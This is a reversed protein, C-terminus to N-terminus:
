ALEAGIGHSPIGLLIRMHVTPTTGSWSVVCPAQVQGATQQGGPAYSDGMGQGARGPRAAREIKGLIERM